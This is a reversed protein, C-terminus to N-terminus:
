NSADKAGGKKQEYFEKKRRELEDDWVIIPIEFGFGQKNYIGTYDDNWIELYFKVSVPLKGKSAEDEGWSFLRTERKKRYSLLDNGDKTQVEELVLESPIWFSCQKINELVTVRQEKSAAESSSLEGAIDVTQVRELRYREPERGRVKEAVLEYRVKVPISPPRNPMTLAHTTLISLSELRRTPKDSVSLYKQKDSRLTFYSVASKGDDKEKNKEESPPLYASSIDKELLDFVLLLQRSISMKENALRSVRYFNGMTRALFVLVVSSLAIALIVEMLTFGKASKM